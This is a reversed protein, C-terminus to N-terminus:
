NAFRWKFGYATKRKGVCCQLINSPNYLKHKKIEPTGCWVRVVSGESDIQFIKIEDYKYSHNTKNGLERSPHLAISYKVNYSATCWELNLVANNRKNEDKHNIQKYKNPNDIFAEAVLRHVTVARKAGDKFLVVQSYGCPHKKLCLNHAIGCNKWNLSRVNGLDSVQYLGEYGVIDKWIEM